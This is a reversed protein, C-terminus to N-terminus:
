KGTSGFGNSGRKTESLEEVLQHNLSKLNGSCIQCIRTGKTLTYSQNNSGDPIFKLAAIINGRYGADIIGVHNHLILPTKSISSRPYLYYSVNQKNYDLMECKIQFNVFKTEWLNFTIDEPVFLDYGSDGPNFSTHNNYFQKVEENDIKILLTNLLQNNQPNKKIEVHQNEHEQSKYNYSPKILTMFFKHIKEVSTYIFDKTYIVSKRLM